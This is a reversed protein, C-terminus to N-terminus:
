WKVPKDLVKLPDYKKDDLMAWMDWPKKKKEEEITEFIYVACVGYVAAAAAPYDMDNVDPDLEPIASLLTPISEHLFVRERGPRMLERLMGLHVTLNGKDNAHPPATVSIHQRHKEKRNFFQLFEMEVRTLRSYINEIEWAKRLVCM